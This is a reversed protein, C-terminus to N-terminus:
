GTTVALAADRVHGAGAKLREAYGVLNWDTWTVRGLAQDVRQERM